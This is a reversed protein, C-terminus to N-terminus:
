ARRAPDRHPEELGVLADSPLEEGRAARLSSSSTHVLECRISAPVFLAFCLSGAQPSSPYRDRRVGLATATTDTSAMLTQVWRERTAMPRRAGTSAFNIYSAGQNSEDLLLERIASDPLVACVFGNTISM